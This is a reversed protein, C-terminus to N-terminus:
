VAVTEDVVTYFKREWGFQDMCEHVWGESLTDDESWTAICDMDGLMHVLSGGINLYGYDQTELILDSYTGGHFEIPDAEGDDWTGSINLLVDGDEDRYIRFKILNERPM